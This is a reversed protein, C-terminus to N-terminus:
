KLRTYALAVTLAPEYLLYHMLTTRGFRCSFAQVITPRVAVQKKIKKRIVEEQGIECM